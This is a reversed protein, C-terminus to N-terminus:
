LNVIGYRAGEQALMRAWKGDKAPTFRRQEVMIYIARLVIARMLYKM